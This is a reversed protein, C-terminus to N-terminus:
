NWAYREDHVVRFPAVPTARGKPAKASRNMRNGLAEGQAKTARGKPAALPAAESM